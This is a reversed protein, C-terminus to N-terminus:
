RVLLLPGKKTYKKTKIERGRATIIYYYTGPSAYKGHIKGNWGEQPDDWEYVKRGWRNIIVGYFYELSQAKVKFIDNIGDGNPTFVNPVEVLSSDVVIYRDIYATDSCQNIGRTNVVVLKVNYSGPHEYIYPPLNQETYIRGDLLSDEVSMAGPQIETTDKYLYWEFSQANESRNDFTVELPAEGQMLDASFEALPIYSHYTAENSEWNLGFRDRIKVRCQVDRYEGEVFQSIERYYDPSPALTREKGGWVVTYLPNEAGPYGNYVPPNEVGELKLTIYHCDMENEIGLRVPMHVYFVTFGVEIPHVGEKEARFFYVGNGLLDVTLSTSDGEYMVPQTRGEYEWAFEWGSSGDPMFQVRGFPLPDNQTNKVAYFPIGNYETRAVEDCGLFLIQGMGWQTGLLCVMLILVRTMKM